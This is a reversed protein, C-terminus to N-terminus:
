DATKNYHHGDSKSNELNRMKEPLPKIRVRTKLDLQVHGTELQQQSTSSTKSTTNNSAASNSSSSSEDHAKSGGDEPSTTSAVSPPQQPPLASTKTSEISDTESLSSELEVSKEKLKIKLKPLKGSSQSSSSSSSSSEKIKSGTVKLKLKLSHEGGPSTQGAEVKIKSTEPKAPSSKISASGNDVTSKSNESDPDPEPPGMEFQGTIPNILFTQKNSLDKNNSLLSLKTSKDTVPSKSGSKSSGPSDSESSLRDNSSNVLSPNTQRPVPSLTVSSSPPPMLGGSGGSGSSSSSSRGTGLNSMNARSVSTLSVGPLNALKVSSGSLPDAALGASSSHSGSATVTGGSSRSTGAGGSSSSSAGSNNGGAAVSSVPLITFGSGSGVYKSFTYGLNSDSSKVGDVKRAKKAVPEDSDKVNFLDSKGATRSAVLSALLGDKITQSGGLPSLVSQESSSKLSFSSGPSNILDRSGHNTRSGPSSGFNRITTSKFGPVDTPSLLANSPGEEGSRPTGKSPTDKLPSSKTPTSTSEAESDSHDEVMTMSIVQGGEVQISLIGLEKLVQDGAEALSALKEAADKPINFTVKVSNWPECKTVDLDKNDLLSQLKNFIQECKTPFGPDDIDGQCTLVAEVKGGRCGRGM